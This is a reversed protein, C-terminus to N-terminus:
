LQSHTLPKITGNKLFREFNNTSLSHLTEMYLKKNKAIKIGIRIKNGSFEYEKILMINGDKPNIGYYDPNGIIGEIDNFYCEYEYPHKNKIHDIKVDTLYIPINNNTNLQLDNIIEQKLYGVYKGM